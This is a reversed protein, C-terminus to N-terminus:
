LLSDDNFLPMHISCFEGLNIKFSLPSNFIMLSSITSSYTVCVMVVLFMFDTGYHKIYIMKLEKQYINM